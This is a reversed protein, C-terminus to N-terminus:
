VLGNHGGGIVVADYDNAVASGQGFPSSNSQVNLKHHPPGASCSIHGRVPGVPGGADLVHPPSMVLRRLNDSARCVCIRWAATSTMRSRPNHSVRIESMASRAPVLEARTM